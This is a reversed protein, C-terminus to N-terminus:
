LLINSPINKKSFCREETMAAQLRATWEYPWQVANDVALASLRGSRRTDMEMGNLLCLWEGRDGPEM